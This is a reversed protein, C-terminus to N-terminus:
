VDSSGSSIWLSIRSSLPVCRAGTQSAQLCRLHRCLAPLYSVPIVGQFGWWETILSWLGIVRKINLELLHHIMWANLFANKRPMEQHTRLVQHEQLVVSWHLSCSVKSGKLGEKSIVKLNLGSCRLCHNNMDAPSSSIKIKGKEEGQPERNSNWQSLLKFVNGPPQPALLGCVAKPGCVETGGQVEQPRKVMLVGDLGSRDIQLPKSSTSLATQFPLDM